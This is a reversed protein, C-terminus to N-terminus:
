GVVKIPHLFASGVRYPAFSVAPSAPFLAAVRDRLQLCAPEVLAEFTARDLEIIVGSSRVRCRVTQPSLARRALVEAEHISRLMAADIAIGTEVRSSLCPSAPLDALAGLGVLRAIARVTRKDIGAEVFPHRVGGEQAAILGPRDEGLDDLNAGSVITAATRPRIAAYLSTKCFYCRNLPNRVYEERSFEGADLVTLNWGERTALVRTRQTAEEPV